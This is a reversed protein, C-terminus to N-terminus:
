KIVPLKYRKIGKIWKVGGGGGVGAEADVLRDKTDTLKSGGGVHSIMCYKDKETQSVESLTIGELDM